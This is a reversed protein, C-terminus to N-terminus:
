EPVKVGREALIRGCADRWGGAVGVAAGWGTANKIKEDWKIYEALLEDDTMDRFPKDAM